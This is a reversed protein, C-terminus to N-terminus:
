TFLTLEPYVHSELSQDELPKPWPRAFPSLLSTFTTRWPLQGRGPPLIDGMVLVTMWSLMHLLVLACLFTQLFSIDCWPLKRILHREPVPFTEACPSTPPKRTQLCSCSSLCLSFVTCPLAPAVSYDLQFPVQDSSGARLSSKWPFSLEHHLGIWLGESSIPSLGVVLMGFLGYVGSFSVTYYLLDMAKTHNGAGGSVVQTVKPKGKVREAEHVGLSFLLIIDKRHVECSQCSCSSFCHACFLM